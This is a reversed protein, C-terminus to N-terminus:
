GNSPRGSLLDRYMAEVVRGLPDDIVAEWADIGATTALAHLTMGPLGPVTDITSVSNVYYTGSSLEGTVNVWPSSTSEGIRLACPQSLGTSSVSIAVRRPNPPIVAYGTTGDYIGQIPQWTVARNAMLDQMCM